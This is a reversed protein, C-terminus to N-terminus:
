GIPVKMEPSTLSTIGWVRPDIIILHPTYIDMRRAELCSVSHPVIGVRSYGTSDTQLWNRRFSCRQTRHLM